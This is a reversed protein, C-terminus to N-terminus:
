FIIHSLGSCISAVCYDMCVTYSIKNHWPLFKKNVTEKIIVVEEIGHMGTMGATLLAGYM